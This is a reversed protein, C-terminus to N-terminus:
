LMKNRADDIISVFRAFQSHSQLFIKCSMEQSVAATTTSPRVENAISIMVNYKKM